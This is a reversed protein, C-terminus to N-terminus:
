KRFSAWFIPHELTLQGLYLWHNETRLPHQM